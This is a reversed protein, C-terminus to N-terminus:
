HMTENKSSSEKSSKKGKAEDEADRIERDLEDIVVGLAGRGHTSAFIRLTMALLLRIYERKEEFDMSLVVDGQIADNLARGQKLSAEVMFAIYIEDAM